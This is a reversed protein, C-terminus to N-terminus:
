IHILSLDEIVRQLADGRRFQEIGSAKTEITQWMRADYTQKTAYRYIEIEFNEPDEAYFM